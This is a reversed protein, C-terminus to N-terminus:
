KETSIFGLGRSMNPIEKKVVAARKKKGGCVIEKLFTLVIQISCVEM